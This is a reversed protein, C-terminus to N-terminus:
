NGSLVQLSFQNVAANNSGSIQNIQVLGRVHSLSDSGIATTFSLANENAQPLPTASNIIQMDADSLGQSVPTSGIIGLNAQLNSRGSVQNVGLLGEFNAFSLGAIESHHMGVSPNTTALNSLIVQVTAQSGLAHSNTQLNDDGAAQNIALRGHVQSFAQPEILSVHSTAVAMAQSDLEESAVSYAPVLLILSASISTLLRAQVLWRPLGLSIGLTRMLM